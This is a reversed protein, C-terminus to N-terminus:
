PVPKETGPSGAPVDGLQRLLKGLGDLNARLTAEADQDTRHGLIGIPGRYGSNRIVRLLEIDRDGQGIPLIKKGLKDGDKVMGNLNLALLHPLMKELLEGLRDLHPHGHHLNYVIGVNPLDLQKIVAIQNEPEGFWGGHNYLGVTCGIKAAAEAIPRVKRATSDVRKKQGEPGRAAGGGGVSVWLETKIGHRKLLDLIARAHPHKVDSPFWFAQLKIGHKKLAEMERDFTPIHKARWDYAFRGFGLRRLMEARQEPGRKKADFPVICWAVLNARSFVGAGAPDAKARKKAAIGQDRANEAALLTASGYLLVATCVAARSSHTLRHRYMIENEMKGITVKGPVDDMPVGGTRAVLTILATHCAEATSPRM